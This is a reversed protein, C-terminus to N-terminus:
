IQITAVCLDSGVGLSIISIIFVCIGAPWAYLTTIKPVAAHAFSPQRISAPSTRAASKTAM